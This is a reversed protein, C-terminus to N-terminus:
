PASGSQREAEILAQIRTAKAGPWYRERWRALELEDLFYGVIVGRATLALALASPVSDDRAPLTVQTMAEKTVVHFYWRKGASGDAPQWLLPGVIVSAGNAERAFTAAAEDLSAFAVPMRRRSECRRDHPNMVSPSM